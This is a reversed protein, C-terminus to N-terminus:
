KKYEKKDMKVKGAIGRNISCSCLQLASEPWESFWDITCCNVLAPFQRLRARFTEGIPSM